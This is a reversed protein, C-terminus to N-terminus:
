IQGALVANVLGANETRTMALGGTAGHMQRGTTVAIFGDSVPFVVTSQYIEVDTGHDWTFEVANEGLEPRDIFADAVGFETPRYDKPLGASFVYHHLYIQVDDTPVNHYACLFDNIKPAPIISEIGTFSSIDAASPCGASFDVSISSAQPAAV